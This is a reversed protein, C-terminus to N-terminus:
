HHGLDLKMFCYVIGDAFEALIERIFLPSFQVLRAGIGGFEDLRQGLRAIEGRQDGLFINSRAKGQRCRRRDKCLNVTLAAIAAGTM